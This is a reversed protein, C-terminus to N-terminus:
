LWRRVRSAYTAYSTGFAEALLREERPITIARLYILPLPLFLLAWAANTVLCIGVFACTLALYMPNRTFRFPGSTVLARSRHHPVITTRRRIFLGVASFALVLASGILVIGVVAAARALSAPALPQPHAQDIRIGLALPLAYVLPPPLNALLRRLCDIL